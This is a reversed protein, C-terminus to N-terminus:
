LLDVDAGLASLRRSIAPLSVSLEDAARTFTGHRAVAYCGILPSHPYDCAVIVERYRLIVKKGLGLLLRM